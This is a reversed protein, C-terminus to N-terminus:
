IDTIQFESHTKTYSTDKQIFGMLRKIESVVSMGFIQMSFCYFCTFVEYYKPLASLWPILIVFSFIYQYEFHITSYSADTIKGWRLLLQVPLIKCLQKLAELNNFDNFVQM